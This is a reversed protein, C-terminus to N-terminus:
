YLLSTDKKVNARRIAAELILNFLVSQREDGQKVDKDINFINLAKGNVRVKGKPDETM